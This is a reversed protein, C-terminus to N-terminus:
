EDSQERLEAYFQPNQEKMTHLLQQLKQEEWAPDSMPKTVARQIRNGIRGGLGAGAAAGTAIPLASTVGKIGLKKALLAGLGTGAAAGGLVGVTEGMSPEQPRPVPISPTPQTGYFDAEEPLPLPPQAVAVKKLVLRAIKSSVKVSTVYDGEDEGEPLAPTRMLSEEEPLANYGYDGGVSASPSFAGTVRAGTNVQERTNRVEGLKLLAALPSPKPQYSGLKVSFNLDLKPMGSIVPSMEDTANSNPTKTSNKPSKKPTESDEEQPVVVAITEAPRRTGGSTRVTRTTRGPLIDHAREGSAALKTNGSM